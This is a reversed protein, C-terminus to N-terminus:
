GGLGFSLFHPHVGLLPGRPKLEQTTLKPRLTILRSFWCICMYSVHKVVKKTKNVQMGLISNYDATCSDLQVAPSYM